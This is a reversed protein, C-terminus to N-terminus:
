LIKPKLDISPKKAAPRNTLKLSADQIKPSSREADLREDIESWPVITTPEVTIGTRERRIRSDCAAEYSMFVKSHTKEIESASRRALDVLATGTSKRSPFPEEYYIEYAHRVIREAKKVWKLPIRRKPDFRGRFIRRAINAYAYRAKWLVLAENYKRADEPPVGAERALIELTVWAQPKGDEIAPLPTVGYRPEKVSRQVIKGYDHRLLLYCKPCTITDRGTACQVSARLHEVTVSSPLRTPLLDIQRRPGIKFTKGCHRCNLKRWLIKHLSFDCGCSCRQAM